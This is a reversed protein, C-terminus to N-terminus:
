IGKQKNLIDEAKKFDEFTDINVSKEPRMVFPLTKKAWLSKTELFLETKIMYIAGNSLYAKPLDQRRTFPYKNNVAGELYGDENVVFSKLVEIEPEAVSILADADHEFFLTVAKDIDISDRLPSTPQLLMITDFNSGVSSLSELVHTIVPMSSAMDSALSDPRIVTDAGYEKSIKLIEEDESSVVTADIFSSQLSAEITYAILPLGSLSKINKRPVGKSGGRAPIIALISSRMYMM